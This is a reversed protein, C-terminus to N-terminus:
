PEYIFTSSWYLEPFVKHNIGIEVELTDESTRGFHGLAKVAWVTKGTSTKQSCRNQRMTDDKSYSFPWFLRIFLNFFIVHLLATTKNVLNFVDALM